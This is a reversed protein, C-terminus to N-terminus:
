TYASQRGVVALLACAIGLGVLAEVALWGARRPWDIPLGQVAISPLQVMSVISALAGASLLLAAAALLPLASTSEIRQPRPISAM